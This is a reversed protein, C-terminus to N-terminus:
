LLALIVPKAEIIGQYFLAQYADEDQHLLLEQHLEVNM